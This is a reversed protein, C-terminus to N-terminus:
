EHEILGDLNTALRECVTLANPTLKRVFREDRRSWNFGGAKRVAKFSDSTLRGGAIELFVRGATEDAWMNWDDGSWECGTLVAAMAELEGIRKEIRRAEATLNTLQWTEIGVRGTFDPKVAARILSDGIGADALEASMADFDTGAGPVLKPAHRRVIKNVTKILDRQENVHALKAELKAVAEPNDSAVGASGVRGARRALEQADSQKRIGRDWKAAQKRRRNRDTQARSNPAIPQGDIGRFFTRAQEADLRGEADLAAARENLRDRKAQQREEYANM